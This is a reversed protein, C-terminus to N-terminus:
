RNHMQSDADGAAHALCMTVVGVVGGTVCGALFGLM